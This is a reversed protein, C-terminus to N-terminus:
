WVQEPMQVHRFLLGISVRHRQLEGQTDQLWLLTGPDACLMCMCSVFLVGNALGPAVKKSNTPCAHGQGTDSGSVLAGYQCLLCM